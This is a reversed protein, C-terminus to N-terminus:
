RPASRRILLELQVDGIEEVAIIQLIAVVAGIPDAANRGIRQDL